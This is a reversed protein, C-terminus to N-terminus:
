KLFQALAKQLSHLIKKPRDTVLKSKSKMTAVKSLIDSINLNDKASTELYMAEWDLSVMCDVISYCVQQREMTLDLKNGIIIIPVRRDGEKEKEKNYPLDM